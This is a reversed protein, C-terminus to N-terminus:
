PTSMMISAANGGHLVLVLVTSCVTHTGEHGHDSGSNFNWLREPLTAAAAAPQM